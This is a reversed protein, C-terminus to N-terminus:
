RIVKGSVVVTGKYSSAVDNSVGEIKVTTYPPIVMELPHPATMVENAQPHSKMVCVITDNLSVRFGWIRGEEIADFNIGGNCQIKIDLADSESNFLLMTAPTDNLTPFAGSYAYVRNDIRNLRGIPFKDTPRNSDAIRQLRVRDEVTRDISFESSGRSRQSAM